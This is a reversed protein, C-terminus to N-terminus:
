HLRGLFRYFSKYLRDVYKGDANIQLLARRGMACPALMSPGENRTAAHHAVGIRKFSNGQAQACSLLARVIFRERVV